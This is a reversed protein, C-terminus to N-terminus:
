RKGEDEDNVHFNKKMLLRLVVKLKGMCVAEHFENEPDYPQCYRDETGCYFCSLYGTARSPGNCFGLPTKPEKKFCLLKRPTSLM